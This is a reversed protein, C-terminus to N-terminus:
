EKRREPIWSRGGLPLWAKPYLGLLSVSLLSVTEQPQYRSSVLAREKMGSGINSEPSSNKNNLSKVLNLLSSTWDTTLTKNLIAPFAISKIRRRLLPNSETTRSRRKKKKECNAWDLWPVSATQQRSSTSVEPEIWRRTSRVHLSGLWAM